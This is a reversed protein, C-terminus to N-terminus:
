PLKLNNKQHKKPRKFRKVAITDVRNSVLLDAGAEMLNPAKQLNAAQVRSGEPLNVRGRLNLVVQMDAPTRSLLLLNGKGKLNLEAQTDALKSSPVLLGERDKLNLAGQTGALESSLVPHIVRDKPNLVVQMDILGKLGLNMEAADGKEERVVVGVAMVM